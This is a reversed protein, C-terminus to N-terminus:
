FTYKISGSSHNFSRNNWIKILSTRGLEFEFGVKCIEPEKDDCWAGLSTGEM